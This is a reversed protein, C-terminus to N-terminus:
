PIPGIWDVRIMCTEVKRESGNRGTLRIGAYWEDGEEPFSDENLHGESVWTGGRMRLGQPSTGYHDPRWEALQDDSEPDDGWLRFIAEDGPRDVYWQADSQPMAAMVDVTALIINEGTNTKNGTPQLSFELVDFIDPGLNEPGDEGSCGKPHGPFAHATGAPAVVVLGIGVAGAIAAAAAARALSGSKAGPENNVPVNTIRM